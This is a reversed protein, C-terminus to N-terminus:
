MKPFVDTKRYNIRKLMTLKLLGPVFCKRIKTFLGGEVIAIKHAKIMKLQFPDYNDTNDFIIDNSSIYDQRIRNMWIPNSTTSVGSGYEYLVANECFFYPMIGHFLMMRYITDEVYVVNGNILEIYEMMMSTECLTAAGLITDMDVFNYWRMKKECNEMYYKMMLPSTKTRIAVKNGAQMEYYIAKCFSWKRGSKELANTWMSLINEGFLLDGPSILKIYQGNSHSIANHVNTVTGHNKESYVLVYNHFDKSDFYQKLREQHNEVSGDDAVIIEFPVNKQNLISEITDILKNWSPNYTLVCVSVKINRKMIHNSDM